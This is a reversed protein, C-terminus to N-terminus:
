SKYCDNKNIMKQFTLLLNPNEIVKRNIHQQRFIGAFEPISIFDCIYTESYIFNIIM